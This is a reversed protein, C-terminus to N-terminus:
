FTYSYMLVYTIDTSLQRTINPISNYPIRTVGDLRSRGGDFVMGVGAHFYGLFGGNEVVGYEKAYGVSSGIIVGLGFPETQIFDWMIDLGIGGFYSTQTNDFIGNLRMGFTKHFFYSYGLAVSANVQLSGTTANHTFNVGVGVQVNSKARRIKNNIDYEFSDGGALELQEVESGSSVGSDGKAFSFAVLCLGVCLIRFCRM